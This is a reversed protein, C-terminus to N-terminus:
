AWKSRKGRSEGDNTWNGNQQEVDVSYHDWVRPIVDTEGGLNIDSPSSSVLGLRSRNEVSSQRSRLHSHTRSFDPSSSSQSIVRRHFNERTALSDSNKAPNKGGFLVPKMSIYKDVISDMSSNDSAPRPTLSSEAVQRRHKTSETSTLSLPQFQNVEVNQLIEFEIDNSDKRIVTFNPAGIINFKHDDGHIRDLERKVLILLFSVASFATLIM